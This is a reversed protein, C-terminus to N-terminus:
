PSAASSGWGPAACCPPTRASPLWDSSGGDFYVTTHPLANFTRGDLAAARARAGATPSASPSRCTRSCSSRWARTGIGKAFERIWAYYSRREAPDVHPHLGRSSPSSGSSASRSASTRTAAPVERIYSRATKRAGWKYGRTHAPIWSGFWRFRPQFLLKSFTARDPASHAHRFYVSPADNNASITQTYFVGWRMGSLPNAPSGLGANAQGAFSSSATALGAVFVLATLALLRTAAHSGFRM